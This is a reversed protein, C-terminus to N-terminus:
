VTLGTLPPGVHVAAWPVRRPTRAPIGLPTVVTTSSMENSSKAEVQCVGIWQADHTRVWAIQYGIMYAEFRIGDSRVTLNRDRVLGGVCGPLAKYMDVYVRRYTRVLTPFRPNSQWREFSREFSM